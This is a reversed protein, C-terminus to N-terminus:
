PQEPGAQHFQVMLGDGSVINFNKFIEYVNEDAFRLSFTINREKDTAGIRIHISENREGETYITIYDNHVATIKEIETTNFTGDPYFNMYDPAHHSAEITFHSRWKKRLANFEEQTCGGAVLASEEKRYTEYPYEDPFVQDIFYDFIVRDYEIERGHFESYFSVHQTGGDYTLEIGEAPIEVQKIEIPRDNNTIGDPHTKPEDSSCSSLAIFLSIVILASLIKITKM